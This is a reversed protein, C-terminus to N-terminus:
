ETSYKIGYKKTLEKLFKKIEDRMEPKDRLAQVTAIGITATSAFHFASARCIGCSCKARDESIGVDDSVVDLIDNITQEVKEEYRRQWEEDSSDVKNYAEM